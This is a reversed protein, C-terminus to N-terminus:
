NSARISQRSKVGGAFSIGPYARFPARKRYRTGNGGCLFRTYIWGKGVCNKACAAACGDIAIVKEGKQAAEMFNPLQLGVGILCSMRGQGLQDLRAAADNAIQGV